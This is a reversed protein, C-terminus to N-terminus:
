KKSAEFYTLAGTNEASKVGRSSMEKGSASDFSYSYYNLYKDDSPTVIFKGGNDLDIATQKGDESVKIATIKKPQISEAFDGMRNRFKPADEDPKVVTTEIIQGDKEYKWDGWIRFEYENHYTQIKKGRVISENFLYKKGALFVLLTDTIYYFETLKRGVFEQLYTEFEKPSIKKEVM